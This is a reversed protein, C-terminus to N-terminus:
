EVVLKAAHLGQGKGTTVVYVGAPLVVTGSGDVTQRAVLRGALDCVTVVGTYGYVEVTGRGAKVVAAATETDRIGTADITVNRSVTASVNGGKYLSAVSYTHTGAEANVHTASRATTRGVLLGDCYVAFGMPYFFDTAPDIEGGFEGTIDTGESDAPPTVTATLYFNGVATPDTTPVGAEIVCNGRGDTVATQDCPVSVVGKAGVCEAALWYEKGPQITVAKTLKLSRPQGNAFEKVSRESVIVPNAGDADTEYVRFTVTMESPGQLPWFGMHTIKGGVYTSLDDATYRNAYELTDTIYDEAVLKGSNLNIWTLTNDTTWGLTVTAGTASATLATVKNAPVMIKATSPHSVLGDAYTADVQYTLMVGGDPAKDTYTTSSTTAIKENDRYVTYHDVAATGEPASWTLTVDGGSTTATFQEPKAPEGEHAFTFSVKGDQETIDRLARYAYRGERSHTSPSTADSFETHAYTGPFPTASSNVDGFSSPSSDPDVGADSCVTYIGQPYGANIDNTLLKSRIINEDVHYAVLGHGPLSYDFPGSQQRNELIFYEGPTGTEMRYVVPETDASPMDTVVTDADLTKPELWGYAWKQWGNVGAPRDGYNGLWAGSALLDWTGTGNYEGGSGSYDTDYFDPAGLAHGFEHCIVGITAQRNDLALMEPEITYRHVTIGGFTQGYVISSHSWIDNTNGSMEQGTGQHIVALGDLVGDGDNDFQKLDLTDTVLSLADYIMYPAGDAGYTAKSKPLTIWDTVTVDIDLKGYSQELFYDRFSGIGGYGEKDMMDRFNQQTYTTKTDSYNVLLVLLKRKGTSPFTGDIMLDSQPTAAKLLSQRQSVSYRLGPKIGLSRAPASSGEYRIASASLDGRGDTQAFAWYGAKDRLLTYGDATEAWHLREDGRLRITVTRGDPQTVTIPKPYAPMAPASTWATAALMTGIVTRLITTKM